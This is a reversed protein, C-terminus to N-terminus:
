KKGGDMWGDMWGGICFMVKKSVLEFGLSIITRKQKKLLKEIM